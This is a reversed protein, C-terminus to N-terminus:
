EIRRKKEERKKEEIRVSKQHNLKTYNVVKNYKM